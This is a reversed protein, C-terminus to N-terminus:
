IIVELLFRGNKSGCRKFTKYCKHFQAHIFNELKKASILWPFLYGLFEFKELNFIRNQGIKEALKDDM